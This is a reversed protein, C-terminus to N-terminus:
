YLWGLMCTIILIYVLNCYHFDKGIMSAEKDREIKYGLFNYFLSITM